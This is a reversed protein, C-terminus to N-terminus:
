VIKWNPVGSPFRVRVKLLVIVGQALGQVTWRENCRTGDMNYCCNLQVRGTLEMIEDNDFTAIVKCEHGNM